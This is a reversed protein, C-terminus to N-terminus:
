FNPTSLLVPQARECVACVCGCVCMACECVCVWESVISFFYHYSRSKHTDDKRLPWALRRQITGIKVSSWWFITGGAWSSAGKVYGLSSLPPHPPIHTWACMPCWHQKKPPGYYYYLSAVLPLTTANDSTIHYAVYATHPLITRLYPRLLLLYYIFPYTDISAGSM